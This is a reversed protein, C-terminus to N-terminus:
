GTMGVYGENLYITGKIGYKQMIPFATNFVSRYGDDFTLVMKPIGALNKKLELFTVNGSKGPNYFLRFQVGTITDNWTM